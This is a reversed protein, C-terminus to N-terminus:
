TLEQRLQIPTLIRPTTVAFDQPNRTVIIGINNCVATSYQISDEFDKFDTNLAMQIVASNVTAIQCFSFLRNLFDMTWTKRRQKKIIYYLDSCTSASIHGTILGQEAFLLVQESELLHPQREFALDIIVNTDILVNM